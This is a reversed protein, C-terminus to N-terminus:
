EEPPTPFSPADDAMMDRLQQRYTAWTARRDASLSDPLQTWDSAALLDNRQLRIADVSASPTILEGAVLKKDLHAGDREQDGDDLATLDISETQSIPEGAKNFITYTMRLEVGM